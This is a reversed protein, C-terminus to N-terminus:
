TVGKLIHKRFLLAIAAVVCLGTALGTLVPDLGYRDILRGFIPTTIGATEISAFFYIGLVTTRRGVPVVDAILSESTPMRVSMNIGYFLLALLLLIGFPATQVAFLLPGSLTLTFLIVQKRGFRDSLAGGIPAGIIGSGAIISIVAGGWKASIHHHDVMYLPLYSNVSAIVIQMIMVLGVIIGISRVIESWSIQKQTPSPDPRFGAGEPKSPKSTGAKEEACGRNRETTLWLITGVLMAMPIQGLGFSISFSSVLVGSQFYNLGFSERILPLLPVLIGTCVHHSFHAVMFQPILYKSDAKTM